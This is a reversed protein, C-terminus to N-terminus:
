IDPHCGRDKERKQTVDETGEGKRPSMRWGKGKRLSMRQGDGAQTVDETGKGKRRSM